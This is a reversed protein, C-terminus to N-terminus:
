QIPYTIPLKFYNAFQYYISHQLSQKSEAALLLEQKIRNRCEQSLKKEAAKPDAVYLDMAAYHFAERDLEKILDQFQNITNEPSFPGTFGTYSRAISQMKKLETNLWKRYEQAPYASSPQFSSTQVDSDSQKCGERKKDTESHLDNKSKKHKVPTSITTEIDWGSRYLRQYFCAKSIGNELCIKEYDKYKYKEDAM